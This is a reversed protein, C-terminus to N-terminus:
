VRQLDQGDAGAPNARSSFTQSSEVFRWAGPQTASRTHPSARACAARQVLRSTKDLEGLEGSALEVGGRITSPRPPPEVGTARWPYV